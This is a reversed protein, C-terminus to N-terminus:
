RNQVCRLVECAMPFVESAACMITCARALLQVSTIPLGENGRPNLSSDLREWKVCRSGIATLANAMETEFDNIQVQPREPSAFLDDNDQRSPV